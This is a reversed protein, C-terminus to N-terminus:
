ILKTFNFLKYQENCDKQRRLELHM